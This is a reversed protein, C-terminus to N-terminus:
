LAFVRRASTDIGDHEHKEISAWLVYYDPRNPSGFRFCRLHHPACDPYKTISAQLIFPGLQVRGVPPQLIGQQLTFVGAM